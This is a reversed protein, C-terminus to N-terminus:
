PRREAGWDIQVRSISRNQKKLSAKSSDSSRRAELKSESKKTNAPLDSKATTPEPARRTADETDTDKQSQTSEKRSLKSSGGEGITKRSKKAEASTRTANSSADSSSTKRPKSSANVASTKHGRPATENPSADNRGSLEHHPPVHTCSQDTPKSKAAAFCHFVDLRQPIWGSRFALFACYSGLLQTILGILMCTLRFPFVQGHEEDYLPLRLTVPVNMIPEGCMWRFVVGVSFALLSGYTNSKEFYLVCILQPFLLVYILDSCLLWLEFVSEVSLALYTAWSGIAFVMIRLVLSVEVDSAQSALMCPKRTVLGPTNGSVRKQPHVVRFQLSSASLHPRTDSHSIYAMAFFFFFIPAPPCPGMTGGLPRAIYTITPFPPCQYVNKTVMSSASLMSSDASSMIAATIGILGMISVLGSTLYRISNPLVRNSDKNRLYYPGHYGAATFNASKAAAGIVAPPIALMICGVASLYSLMRADFDSECSLVRQFYVLCIATSAIQLVDTHTVVYVGGLSTYFFVVLASAVVFFRVDVEMIAHATDGLAALVAATWFVEGVVAPFCLLLAMWRGYRTQFPDLMTIPRTARMKSAFFTGGLVLSVAYGLPAHCHLLGNKYVAEATGNLYGGGVWTATMSGVGLVLPLHRNAIFLKMLFHAADQKRRSEVSLRSMQASSDSGLRRSSWVGLTVVACYYIIVLMMAVVNVAMKKRSSYLLPSPPSRM